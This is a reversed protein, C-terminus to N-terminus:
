SSVQTVSFCFVNSALSCISGPGYILTCTDEQALLAPLSEYVITPYLTESLPYQSM